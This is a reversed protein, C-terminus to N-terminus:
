NRPHVYIAFSDISLKKFIPKEKNEHLTRDFFEKEWQSNTTSICLEKLTFGM